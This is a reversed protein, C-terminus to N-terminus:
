VLGKVTLNHPTSNLSALNPLGLDILCLTFAGSNLPAKAKQYTKMGTKM